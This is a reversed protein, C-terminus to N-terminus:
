GLVYHNNYVDLNQPQNDLLVYYTSLLYSHFTQAYLQLEMFSM